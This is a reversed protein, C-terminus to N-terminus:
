GKKDLSFDLNNKKLLSLKIRSLNLLIKCCFERGCLLKTDYSLYSEHGRTVHGLLLLLLLLLLLSLLLLLLLLLLLVM